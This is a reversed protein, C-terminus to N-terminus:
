ILRILKPPVNFEEMTEPIREDSDYAKKFDVFSVVAPIKYENCTTIPEKM